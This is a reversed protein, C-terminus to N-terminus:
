PKEHEMVWNEHLVIQRVRGKSLGWEAGLKALTVDGQNYREAISRNRDEQKNPPPPMYGCKPCKMM